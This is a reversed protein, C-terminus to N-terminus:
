PKQPQSNQEKIAKRVKGLMDRVATADAADPVEKLYSALNEAAKDLAHRRYNLNFLYKWIYAMQKGGLTHARLLEREAQEYDPPQSEMLSLGLYLHAMPFGEDYKNATQLREVAQPYQKLNYSLIGLNVHTLPYKDNIALAKEFMAQAEAPQKMEVHVEGLKNLAKLYEPYEHLASQLLRLAEDYKQEQFKKAGKDYLKAAAKPVKQSLEAASLMTGAPKVIPGADLPRLYVQVSFTRSLTGFVEVSEQTTDYQQRDGHVVVRYNSNPISRFEFNGVSDSFTEGAVGGTALELTVRLRQEPLSGSPMYIKGRVTHTVAGASRGGGATNRDGGSQGGQAMSATTAALLCLSLGVIRFSFRSLTIVSTM